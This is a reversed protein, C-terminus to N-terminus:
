LGGGMPRAERARLAQPSSGSRQGAGKGGGWNGGSQKDDHGVPGAQVATRYGRTLSQRAGPRTAPRPAAVQGTAETRAGEGTMAMGVLWRGGGFVLSCTLSPGTHKRPTHTAKRPDRRAPTRVKQGEGLDARGRCGPPSLRSFFQVSSAPSNGQVLTGEPRDGPM